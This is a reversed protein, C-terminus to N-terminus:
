HFYGEPLTLCTILLHTISKQVSDSPVFPVQLDLARHRGALATCNNEAEAQSRQKRLMTSHTTIVQPSTTTITTQDAYATFSLAITDRATLWGVQMDVKFFLCPFTSQCETSYIHIYAHAQFTPFPRFSPFTSLETRQLWHWISASLFSQSILVLVSHKTNLLKQKNLPFHKKTKKATLFFNQNKKEFQIQLASWSPTTHIYHVWLSTKSM